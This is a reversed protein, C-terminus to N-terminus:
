TTKKDADTWDGAFVEGTFERIELIYSKKNDDPVLKAMSCGAILGRNRAKMELADAEPDAANRHIVGHEAFLYSVTQGSMNLLGAVFGQSFGSAVAENQIEERAEEYGSGLAVFVGERSPDFESEAILRRYHEINAHVFREM